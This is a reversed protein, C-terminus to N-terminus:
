WPGIFLGFVRLRQKVPLMMDLLYHKDGLKVVQYGDKKLQDLVTPNM